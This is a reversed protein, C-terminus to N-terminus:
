LAKLERFQFFKGFVEPEAAALKRAYRSSFHDNLKFGGDCQQNVTREWRIRHLIADASYHTRGVGVLEWAFRKFAEWVEPHERDFQAFRFGITRDGARSDFVQDWLTQNDLAVTM